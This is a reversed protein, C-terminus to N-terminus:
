GHGTVEHTRSYAPETCCYRCQFLFLPAQEFNMCALALYVGVGARGPLQHAQRVAVLSVNVACIEFHRHQCNLLRALPHTFPAPFLSAPATPDSLERRTGRPATQDLSFRASPVPMWSAKSSTQQEKPGVATVFSCLQTSGVPPISPLASQSSPM